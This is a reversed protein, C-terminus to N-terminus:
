GPFFGDLCSKQTSGSSILHLDVYIPLSESLILHRLLEKYGLGASM